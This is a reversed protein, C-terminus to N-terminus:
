FGEVRGREVSEHAAVLDAHGPISCEKVTIEIQRQFFRGPKRYWWGDDSQIGSEQVMTGDDGIIM